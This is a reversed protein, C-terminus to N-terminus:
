YGRQKRLNRLDSFHNERQELIKFFENVTRWPLKQIYQYLQEGAKIPDYDKTPRGILETEWMEGGADLPQDLVIREVM